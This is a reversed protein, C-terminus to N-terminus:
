SKQQLAAQVTTHTTNRYTAFFKAIKSEVSLPNSSKQLAQKVSKVFKEALGNSSPYYPPVRSKIFRCFESSTFPPGNDSVLTLPLGHTAFMTHLKDITQSASISGVM